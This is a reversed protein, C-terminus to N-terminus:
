SIKDMNTGIKWVEYVEDIWEWEIYIDGAEPNLKYEEDVMFKSHIEGTELDQYDLWGVRRQGRFVIHKVSITNYTDEDYAPRNEFFGGGANYEAVRHQYNSNIEDIEKDTLDFQSIVEYPHMRFEAVAWQGNEIFDLDPSLDCAFRLPNVVKAVPKGNVIGIYYVEYASLLADEM